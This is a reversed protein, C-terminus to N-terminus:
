TSTPLVSEESTHLERRPHSPCVSWSQFLSYFFSGVYRTSIMVFIRGPRMWRGDDFTGMGRRSWTRRKWGWENGGEWYYRIDDEDNIKEIDFTTM